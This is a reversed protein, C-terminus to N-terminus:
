AWSPHIRRVATDSGARGATEVAPVRRPTSNDRATGTAATATLGTPGSSSARRKSASGPLDLIGINRTRDLRWEFRRAPLPDNLMVGKATGEGTNSTTVTFSIDDVARRSNFARSLGAVEIANAM